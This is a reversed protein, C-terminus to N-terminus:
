HNPRNLANEQELLLRSNLLPPQRVPLLLRLLLDDWRWRFRPDYNRSFM